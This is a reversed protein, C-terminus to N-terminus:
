KTLYIVNDTDSFWAWPIVQGGKNFLSSDM